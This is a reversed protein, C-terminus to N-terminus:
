PSLDLISREFDSLHQLIHGSADLCCNEQYLTQGEAVWGDNGTATPFHHQNIQALAKNHGIPTPPTLYEAAIARRKTSFTLSFSASISVKGGGAAM